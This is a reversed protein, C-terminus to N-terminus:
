CPPSLNQLPLGTVLACIHLLSKLNCLLSVTLRKWNAPDEQSSSLSILLLLVWWVPNEPHFQSYGPCGPAKTRRRPSPCSHYSSGLGHPTVSSGLSNQPDDLVTQDREECGTEVSSPIDTDFYAHVTVCTCLCVHVYTCEM